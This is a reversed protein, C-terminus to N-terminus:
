IICSSANSAVYFSKRGFHCELYIVKQGNEVSLTIQFNLMEILRRRGEFDGKLEDLDQTILAAYKKIDNIQEETLSQAELIKALKIRQAELNDLISEVREIDNLIAEKARSVSRNELVKLDNLLRSLENNHQKISADAAQLQLKLPENEKDRSAQYEALGKDLAIPDTLISELWNWVTADVKATQFFPLDCKRLLEPDNKAKCRYYSYARGEGRYSSGYMKYGCIGCTVRKSFLYENKMNRKANRKNEKKKLQAAEWIERDIIPPVQVAILDEKSELRGEMLARKGYYWVGAYTENGVIQSITSKSWEGYKKHKKCCVRRTGTDSHTPIKMESLRKSIKGFSITEEIYWKFILKVIRAEEEIIELIAKGNQKVLRYGYPPRGSVIVNGKQITQKRGRNMRERIKEREYEAVTARIHKQFRGEPTDDYNALVYEVRVGARKLEEEVILQKALNRSLRDLERVILVDIKGNHAMERVRNLQPLDIEYGSAGRDDESLEAIIKYGKDLAYDRGLKLQGEINRGEKGRDDGSVRAYLAAREVVPFMAITPKIQTNMSNKMM